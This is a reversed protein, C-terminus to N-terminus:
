KFALDSCKDNYIKILEDYFSTLNKKRKLLIEIGLKELGDEKFSAINEIRNYNVIDSSDIKKMIYKIKSVLTIDQQIIVMIKQNNKDDYSILNDFKPYSQTKWYGYSDCDLSICQPNICNVCEKKITPM